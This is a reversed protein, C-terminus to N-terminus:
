VRSLGSQETPYVSSCHSIYFRFSFEISYLANNDAEVVM